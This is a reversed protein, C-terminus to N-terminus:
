FLVSLGIAYTNKFPSENKALLYSFDMQIHSLLRIGAGVTAYSNLNSYLNTYSYGCRVFVFSNYSYEAGASARLAQEDLCRYGIEGGVNVQHKEAVPKNWLIGAAIIGPLKYDGEDSVVGGWGTAKLAVDLFSADADLQLRYTTGLDIGIANASGDYGPNWHAYNVVASIGWASSLHRAYGAHVSMYQPKLRDGTINGENDTPYLNNGGPAYYGIGLLLKNDADLSYYAAANILLNNREMNNTSNKAWPSYMVGAEVKRDSYATSSANEYISFANPASVATIGGMGISRTSKYLESTSFIGQANLLSTCLLGGALSITHILNRM